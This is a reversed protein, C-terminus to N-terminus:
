PFWVFAIVCTDLVREVHNTCCLTELDHEKKAKAKELNTTYRFSGYVVALFLPPGMMDLIVKGPLSGIAPWDRDM